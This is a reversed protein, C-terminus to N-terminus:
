RRRRQTRRLGRLSALSGLALALIAVGRSVDNLAPLRTPSPTSLPDNPNSGAAVEQGDPFGDGDTDPNLSDTGTDAASTFIGTNTEVVDALGDGDADPDLFWPIGDADLDLHPFAGAVIPLFGSASTTLDGAAGSPGIAESQGLSATAGFSDSSLGTAASASVHGARATYGPSSLDAAAVPTSPLLLTAALAGLRRAILPQM